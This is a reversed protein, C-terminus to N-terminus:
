APCSQISLRSARREISSMASFTMGATLRASPDRAATAHPRWGSRVGVRGRERGADSPRLLEIIVYFVRQPACFYSEPSFATTRSM